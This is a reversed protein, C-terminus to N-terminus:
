RSKKIIKISEVTNYKVKDMQGSDPMKDGYKVSDYVPTIERFPRDLQPIEVARKYIEGTTYSEKIDMGKISMYKLIFGYLYKIKEKPNEIKDVGKLLRNINLIKRGEKKTKSIGYPLVREISDTYYYTKEEKCENKEFLNIIKQYVFKFVNKLFPIFENIFLAIIKYVIFAVLLFALVNFVTDVISNKGAGESKGNVMEPLNPYYMEGSDFLGYIKEMIIKYFNWIGKVASALLNGVNRLIAALLDRFCYCALILLFFVVTKRINYSRMKLPIGSAKDFRKSFIGDLNSQNKLILLFFAYIFTFVYFLNKLHKLGDFYISFTLALLIMVIGAYIKVGNILYNYEKFYLRITFFCLIATIFAGFIMFLTGYYYFHTLSALIPIILFLHALVVNRKIYKKRMIFTVAAFTGYVAALYFFADFFGLSEKFLSLKVIGTIPYICLFMATISMIKLIAERKKEMM